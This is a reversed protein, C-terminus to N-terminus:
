SDDLCLLPLRLLISDAKQMGPGYSVLAPSGEIVILTM